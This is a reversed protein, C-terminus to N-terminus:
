LFKLTCAPKVRKMKVKKRRLMNPTYKPITIGRLNPRRSFQQKQRVM